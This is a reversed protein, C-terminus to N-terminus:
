ITQPLGFKRSNRFVLRKFQPREGFNLLFGLEMDTARLYNLLQAEHEPVLASASKLELIVSDDVIIDAFDIM